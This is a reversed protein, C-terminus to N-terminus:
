VGYREVKALLKEEICETEEYQCFCDKLYYKGYRVETTKGSHSACKKLNKILILKCYKEFNKVFSKDIDTVILPSDFYVDKNICIDVGAQSKMVQSAKLSKVLYYEMCVVPLVVLRYQSKFSMDRLSKYIKATEKNGPIMDM